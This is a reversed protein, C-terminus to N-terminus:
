KTQSYTVTKCKRCTATSGKGEWNIKYDIKNSGCNPCSFLEPYDTYNKELWVRLRNLGRKSYSRFDNKDRWGFWSEKNTCFRYEDIDYSGDKWIEVRGATWQEKERGFWFAPNLIAEGVISIYYPKFLGDIRRKLKKIRM